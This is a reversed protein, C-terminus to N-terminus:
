PSETSPTAQRTVDGYDTYSADHIGYDISRDSSSDDDLNQSVSKMYRYRTVIAMFLVFSTVSGIAIWTSSGGAIGLTTENNNEGEDDTEDDTENNQEGLNIDIYTVNIMAPHCDNLTGQDMISKISQSFDKQYTDLLDNGQLFVSMRGEFIMCSHYFEMLNQVDCTEGNGVDVPKSSLGIIENLFRKNSYIGSNVISHYEQIMRRRVEQEEEEQCFPFYLKILEDLLTYEVDSVIDTTTEGMADRIENNMEISYKYYIIEKQNDNSTSGFSGNRGICPDLTPQSSPVSTPNSSPVLSPTGTPDLTPQNSPSSTPQSSPMLSPTKTFIYAPGNTANNGVPIKTHRDDDDDTGDDDSLTQLERMDNNVSLSIM